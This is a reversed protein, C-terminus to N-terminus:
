PQEFATKRTLQTQLALIRQQQEAIKDVKTQLDQNLQEITRHQAASELAVIAIQAFASLLNWDEPRYPADKPGLIMVALLAGESMLPQPAEGGLQRLQRQALTLGGETPSPCELGLGNQLAEVLPEGASLNKLAPAKSR